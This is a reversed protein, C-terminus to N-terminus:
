AALLLPPFTEDAEAIRECDDDEEDDEIGDIAVEVEM